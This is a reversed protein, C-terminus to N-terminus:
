SSCGRQHALTSPAMGLLPDVGAGAGELLLRIMAYHHVTHSALFQLERGLSSRRWEPRGTGGGADMQVEISRDPHEELMELRGLCERTAQIAEERSSELRPDRARADYNVRGTLLGSFLAQYHEIVHRYQAGVPAWAGRRDAYLSGSLGELLVIGQRLLSRNGELPLGGGSM